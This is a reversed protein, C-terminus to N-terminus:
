TLTCECRLVQKCDALLQVTKGLRTKRHSRRNVQVGRKATEASKCARRLAAEAAATFTVNEHDAAHMRQIKRSFPRNAVFFSSM